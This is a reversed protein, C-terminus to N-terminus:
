LRKAPKAGPSLLSDLLKLDAPLFPDIALGVPAIGNGRLPPLAFHM